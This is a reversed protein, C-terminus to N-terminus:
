LRRMPPIFARPGQKESKFHTFSRPKMVLVEAHLRELLDPAKMWLQAAIDAPTTDPDHDIEVGEEGAARILSDMEEPTAMEHVFYLADVMRNPMQDDPRMLLGALTEYDFEPPASAPWILGRGTLYDQYPALFALLRIPNIAKLSDPQAFRRPNLTAM